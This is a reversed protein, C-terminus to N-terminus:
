APGPHGEPAGGYLLGLQGALRNLRTVFNDPDVGRSVTVGLDELMRLAEVQRTIGVRVDSETALTPV